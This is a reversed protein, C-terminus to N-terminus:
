TNAGKMEAGCNPCYNRPLVTIEYTEECTSCAIIGDGAFQWKGENREDIARKNWAELAEKETDDHTKGTGNFCEFLRTRCGCRLCHAYDGDHNTYKSSQHYLVAEGGCMPCPKLTYDNLM